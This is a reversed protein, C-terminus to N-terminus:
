QSIPVPMAATGPEFMLPMLARDDTAIDTVAPFRLMLSGYWAYPALSLAGFFLGLLAIFWWQAPDIYMNICGLLFFLAAFINLVIFIRRSFTAFSAM